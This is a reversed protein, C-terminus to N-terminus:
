LFSQDVAEKRALGSAQYVIKPMSKPKRPTRSNKIEEWVLTEAKTM